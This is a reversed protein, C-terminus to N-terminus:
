SETLKSCLQQWQDALVNDAMPYLIGEEKANHQQIIMLLTDGDDLVADFRGQKVAAQMQALLGRMQQHEHRMVFTPGGGHMGTADELAPFLVEEEWRLHRHMLREFKEWATTIQTANKGTIAAEVAAWHEDCIKHDDIFFERISQNPKSM